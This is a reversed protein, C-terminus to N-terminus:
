VHTGGEIESKHNRIASEQNRFQNSDGIRFGCESIRLGM